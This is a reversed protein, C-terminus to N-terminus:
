QTRRMNFHARMERKEDNSKFILEESHHTDDIVTIVLGDMHGDKTSNFNTGDIFVFELTKGDPSMKGVMRPQNGAACYHTLMLRGDDLHFMTIMNDHGDLMESLIASGNSTVRFNVSMPHKPNDSEWSGVLTKLTEFSKAAESKSVVIDSGSLPTTALLTLFLSLVVYTSKM